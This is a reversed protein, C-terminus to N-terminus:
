FPEYFICVQNNIKSRDSMSDIKKLFNLMEKFGSPLDAKFNMWKKVPHM